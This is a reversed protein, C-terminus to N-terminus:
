IRSWAIPCMDSIVPDGPKIGCRLLEESIRPDDHGPILRFRADDGLWQVSVSRRGLGPPLNGSGGHATMGHFVVCDGPEMDWSLIEYEDRHAEIDPFASLSTCDDGEYHNHFFEPRQYETEWQHSGRVFELATERPVEDLSM